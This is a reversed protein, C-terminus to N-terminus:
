NAARVGSGYLHQDKKINSAKLTRLNHHHIVQAHRMTHAKSDVTRSKIERLVPWGIRLEAGPLFGQDVQNDLSFRHRSHMRLSNPFQRM